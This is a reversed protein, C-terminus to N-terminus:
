IFWGRSTALIKNSRLISESEIQEAKICSTNSSQSTLLFLKFSNNPSSTASITSPTLLSPFNSMFLLVSISAFLKCFIISAIDLSTRTTSTLIQSRKCLILVISCRGLDLCILFDFSVISNYPGRANLIPICSILDSNSSKANLHMWGKLADISSLAIFFDLPPRFFITEFIRLSSFFCRLVFPTSLTPTFPLSFFIKLM